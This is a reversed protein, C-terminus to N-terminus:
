IGAETHPSPQIYSASMPVLASCVSAGSVREQPHAGTDLSALFAAEV